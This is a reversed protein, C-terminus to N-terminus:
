ALTSGGQILNDLSDFLVEMEKRTEEAWVGHAGQKSLKLIRGVTSIALQIRATDHSASILAM